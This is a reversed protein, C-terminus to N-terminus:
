FGAPVALQGAAVRDLCVDNDHMESLAVRRYVLRRQWPQALVKDDSILLDDTLANGDASLSFTETVTLAESNPISDDLLTKANRDTSRVVLQGNQWHGNAAGMATPYEAVHPHATDVSIQRFLHNWAFLMTINDKRVVIQLPEPLTMIRPVGPSSCRATLDFDLTGNGRATQNASRQAEGWATLQPSTNGYGPLGSATLDIKWIGEFASTDVDATKSTATNDAARRPLLVVVAVGVIVVLSVSLLTRTKM